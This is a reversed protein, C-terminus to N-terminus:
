FRSIINWNAGDSQFVWGQLYVSGTIGTTAAIADITGGASKVTLDKDADNTKKVTIKRGKCTTADPLTVTVEAANAMLVTEVLENGAVSMDFNATKSEITPVSVDKSTFLRVWRSNAKTANDLFWYYFGPKVANVGTGASATNFVLLSEKYYGETDAAAGKITTFDNTGTLTVNPILVGRNNSDVHLMTSKNPSAIGIGVQAYSAAGLILFAGLLLKKM